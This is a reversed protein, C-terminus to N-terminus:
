DPRGKGNRAPEQQAAQGRHNMKRLLGPDKVTHHGWSVVWHQCNIHAQQRSFEGWYNWKAGIIMWATLLDGRGPSVTEVWGRAENNINKKFLVIM